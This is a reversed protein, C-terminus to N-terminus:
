RPRGSCMVARSRSSHKSTMDLTAMAAAKFQSDNICSTDPNLEDPKPRSRARRPRNRDQPEAGRLLTTRMQQQRGIGVHAARRGLANRLRDFPNNNAGM